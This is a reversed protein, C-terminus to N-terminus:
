LKEVIETYSIDSHSANYICEGNSIVLVQPSEHPVSFLNAIKDSINRHKILDLFYSKAEGFEGEKFSRELRNLAMASISCRTSHKFIVVKTSKSETNLSELKELSDLTNWKM